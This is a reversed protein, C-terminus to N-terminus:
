PLTANIPTALDFSTVLSGDLEIDFLPESKSSGETSCVPWVLRIFHFLAIVTSLCVSFLRRYIAFPQSPTDWHPLLSSTESQEPSQNDISVYYWDSHRSLSFQSAPSAFKLPSSFILKGARPPLKQSPPLNQCLVFPAQLNNTSQTSTALKSVACCLVTHGRVISMQRLSALATWHGTWHGCRQPDLPFPRGRCLAHLLM